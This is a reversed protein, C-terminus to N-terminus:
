QAFRTPEAEPLLDEDVVSRRDRRSRRDTFGEDAAAPLEFAPIEFAARTRKQQLADTTSADTGASQRSAM